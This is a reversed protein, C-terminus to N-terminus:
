KMKRFKIVTGALGVLMLFSLASILLDTDTMSKEGAVRRAQFLTRIRGLRDARGERASTSM